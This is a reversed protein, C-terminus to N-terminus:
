ELYWERLKKNFYKKLRDNYNWMLIKFVLPDKINNINNHNMCDRKFKNFLEKDEKLVQITTINSFKTTKKPIKVGMKKVFNEAGSALCRRFEPSKTFNLFLNALKKKLTKVEKVITKIKEPLKQIEPKTLEIEKEVIQQEYLEIKELFDM